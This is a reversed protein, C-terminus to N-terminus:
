RGLVSVGEWEKGKPVGLLDAVTVAIDKISVDPIARNKTFRPGCFCIPITMDEPCDTGHSRGHGGHDAATILTYGEPLNEYIKEICDMAKYVSKLYTESM